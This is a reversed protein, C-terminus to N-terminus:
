VSIDSGGKGGLYNSMMRVQQMSEELLVARSRLKQEEENEEKVQVFTLM